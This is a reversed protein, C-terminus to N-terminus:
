SVEITSGYLGTTSRQWLTLARPIGVPLNIAAPCDIWFFDHLVNPNLAKFQVIVASYYLFGLARAQAVLEARGSKYCKTMSAVPTVWM